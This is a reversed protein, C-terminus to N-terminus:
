PHHTQRYKLGAECAPWPRSSSSAAITRPGNTARSLRLQLWQSLALLGEATPRRKEPNTVVAASMGQVQAADHQSQRDRRRSKRTGAQQVAESWQENQAESRVNTKLTLTAQGRGVRRFTDPQKSPLLSTSAVTVSFQRAGVPRM